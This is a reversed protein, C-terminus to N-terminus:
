ISSITKTSKRGEATSEKETGVNGGGDGGKMVAFVLVLAV